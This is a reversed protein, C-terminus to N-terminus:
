IGDVLPSDTLALVFAKAQTLVLAKYNFHSLVFQFIFRM